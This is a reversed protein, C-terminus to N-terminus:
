RVREVGRNLGNAARMQNIIQGSNKRLFEAGSQQDIAQITIAFSDGGGGGTTAVGLKGGVRTLPMIAEDGAEGAVGFMTPGRIIDGNAFPKVSGGFAGGKAFLGGILSLIGGFGGGGGGGGGAGGGLANIAITQFKIKILEVLYKIAADTIAAMADTQIDKFSKTGNIVGKIGDEAVTTLTDRVSSWMQNAAIGAATTKNLADVQADGLRKAQEIQVNLNDIQAQGLSDDALQRKLELIRRNTEEIQIELEARRSQAEDGSETSTLIGFAGRTSKKLDSIQQSTQLTILKSNTALIKEDIAAQQKAIDLARQRLAPLRELAAQLEKVKATQFGGVESLALQTKLQKKLNAESKRFDETIKFAVEQAKTMPQSLLNFKSLVGAAAVNAKELEDVFGIARTRAITAQTKKALADVQALERGLAEFQDTQVKTRAAGLAGLKAFETRDGKFGEMIKRLRNFSTEATKVFPFTAAGQLSATARESLGELQKEAALSTKGLGQVAAALGKTPNKVDDLNKKIRAFQEDTGFLSDAFTAGGAGGSAKDASAKIEAQFKKFAETAADFQEQPGGEGKFFGVGSFNLLRNFLNDSGPDGPQNMKAVVDDVGAGVTALGAVIGAVAGLPGFLMFGIVGLAGITGLSEGNVVDSIFNFIKIIIKGIALLAKGVGIVIDIGNKLTQFFEKVDNVTITRIFEEVATGVNQIIATLRIAVDTDGLFVDAIAKQIKSKAGQISGLITDGLKAAFGGFSKELGRTLNVIFENASINGKEVESIVESISRGTETAFVRMAVPLAEGIQQRLEEMSLVGKGAVQQLGISFRKLEESTGGFAAIADAGAAVADFALKSEIGAARLRVFSDTVADITFPSAGFTKFLKDFTQKAQVAGGEVNALRILMLQLKGTVDVLSKSFQVLVGVAILGLALRLGKLAKTTSQAKKKTKDLDRQVNKLARGSTNKATITLGINFAM